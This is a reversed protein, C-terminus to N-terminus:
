STSAPSCATGPPTAGPVRHGPARQLRAPVHSPDLDVDIHLVGRKERGRVSIDHNKVTRMPLKSLVVNGYAGGWLKRNEGFLYDAGTARSLYHAQDDEPM